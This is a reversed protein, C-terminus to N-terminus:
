GYTEILNSARVRIENDGSSQLRVIDDILEKVLGGIEGAVFLGDLVIAEDPSRLMWRLKEMDYGSIFCQALDFLVYNYGADGGIVAHYLEDCNMNMGM